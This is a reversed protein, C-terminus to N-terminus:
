FSISIGENNAMLIYTFTISNSSVATGNVIQTSSQQSRSPGMLVEFGKVSAIRFDRVNLSNVTYSLRFQDGVVVTEPAIAKFNVKGNALLLAKSAFM